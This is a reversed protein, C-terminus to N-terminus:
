VSTVIRYPSLLAHMGMPLERPVNGGQVVEQRNEYLHGVMLRIAQIIPQPITAETYGLNMNIQVRNFADDYTSPVNTFTIRSAKTKIDYWYKSAALTATANATDLYTVSSISNVPGVPFRQGHFSDLYGVATVDGLRTNCYDEIWSIAADRLAEILTDEDTHDVRLNEKLQAVTIISDLTPSSTIEITMM